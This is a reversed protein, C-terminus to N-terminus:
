LFFVWLNLLLLFNQCNEIFIHKPTFNSTREPISESGERDIERVLTGDGEHLGEVVFLSSSSIFLEFKKGSGTTKFFAIFTQVKFYPVTVRAKVL